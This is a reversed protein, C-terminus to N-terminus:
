YLTPNDLETGDTATFSINPELPTPETLNNTVGTKSILDSAYKVKFLFLGDTSSIVKLGLFYNLTGLDKMEFHQSLFDRLNSIGSAYYAIIIMDYVYLLLLVIGNTTRRIFLAYDYPSSSFELQEITSSFKSFWVRPGQKLDCLSKRLHCVKNPPCPYGSPPKMYVEGELDGNLFVNKVDMQNLKWNRSAAIPLLTCGSTLPAVPAFTEEYGIGYEQTFGKAV